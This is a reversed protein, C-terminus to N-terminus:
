KGRAADIAARMSIYQHVASNSCGRLKYEDMFAQATDELIQFWAGDPVDDDDAADMSAKFEDLLHAPIPNSM